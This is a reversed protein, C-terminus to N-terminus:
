KPFPLEMQVTTDIFYPEERKLTYVGVAKQKVKRSYLLRADSIKITLGEKEANELLADKRKDFCKGCRVGLTVDKDNTVSEVLVATRMDLIANCARCTLDTMVAIRIFEKALEQSSKMSDGALSAAIAKAVSM